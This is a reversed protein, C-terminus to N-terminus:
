VNGDGADHTEVQPRRFVISPTSRSGSAVPEGTIATTAMAARERQLEAVRVEQAYKAVAELDRAYLPHEYAAEGQHYVYGDGYWKVFEIIREAAAMPDPMAGPSGPEDSEHVGPPYNPIIEGGVEAPCGCEQHVDPLRSGNVAAELEADTADGLRRGCRNCARKVTVTTGGGSSPMRPTWPRPRTVESVM